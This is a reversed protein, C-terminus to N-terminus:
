SSKHMYQSCCVVTLLTKHNSMKFKIKLLIHFHKINQYPNLLESQVICQVVVNIKAGHMISDIYQESM